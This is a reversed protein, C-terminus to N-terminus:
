PVTPISFALRRWLEFDNIALLGFSACVDPIKRGARITSPKSVERTVVVRDPEALAAAILFPDKGIKEIEVDTLDQAYGHSLVHQVVTIDTAEDLVLLDKVYKQKLWDALLGRSITVENYIQLPTKITQATAMELLWAWFQPIRDLPYYDEHARIMVDADILYLTM